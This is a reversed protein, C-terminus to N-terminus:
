AKEKSVEREITGSWAWGPEYWSATGTITGDENLTGYYYGGNGRRYLKVQNGVISQVEIVDTIQGNWVANFTDTGDIRTWEGFYQGIENVTIHNGLQPFKPITNDGITVHISRDSTDWGEKSAYVDVRYIDGPNGNVPITAEGNDGTIKPLLDVYQGNIAKKLLANYTHFIRIDLLAEKLPQHECADVVKAIVVSGSGENLDLVLRDCPQKPGPTVGNQSNGYVNVQISGHNDAYSGPDYISLTLPKDTGIMSTKYIHSPNYEVPDGNSKAIDYMSKDDLQLPRFYDAQDRYDYYADAGDMRGNWYSFPGVAQITYYKGAELVHTTHVPNGGAPVIVTELLSGLVGEDAPNQPADQSVAPIFYLCLLVFIIAAEIGVKGSLHLIQNFKMM